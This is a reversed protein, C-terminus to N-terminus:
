LDVSQKVVTWDKITAAVQINAEAKDDPDEPDKFTPKHYGLGSISNVTLVYWHNRVVGFKDQQMNSGDPNHKVWATYYSVGATYEYVKIADLDAGSKTKNSTFATNAASAKESISSGTAEAISKYLIAAKKNKFILNNYTYFTKGDTEATTFISANIDEDKTGGLGLIATFIQDYTSIADQALETYATSEPTYTVKYVVGTTQGNQQADAQMTNEPCYFTASTFGETFTNNSGDVTPNSFNATLWAAEDEAGTLKKNYNPDEPYIWTSLVGSPKNTATQAERVMYMYKNLNILAGGELTASAIKNKNVDKVDITTATQELEVKAVVREIDVEVLHVMQPNDSEVTLDDNVETDSATTTFDTMEAVLDDNAMLFNDAVHLKSADAITLVQDMQAGVALTENFAAKTSNNYNALVYVKYQGAPIKFPETARNAANTGGTKLTTAYIAQVYNNNDALVVTLDQVAQESTTGADTDGTNDTARSTAKSGTLNLVIQAYTEGENLQNSPNTLGEENTCATLASLGVLGTLLFNKTKM